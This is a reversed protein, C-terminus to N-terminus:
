LLLLPRKLATQPSGSSGRLIAEMVSAVFVHWDAIVKRYNGVGM